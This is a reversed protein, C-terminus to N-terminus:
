RKRVRYISAGAQEALNNRLWLVLGRRQDDVTAGWNRKEGLETKQWRPCRVTDLWRCTLELKEAQHELM